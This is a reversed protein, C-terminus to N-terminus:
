LGKEKEESTTHTGWEGCAGRQARGGLLIVTDDVLGLIAELGWRGKGALRWMPISKVIGRLVGGRLLVRAGPGAWLGAAVAEPQKGRTM